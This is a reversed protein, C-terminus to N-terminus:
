PHYANTTNHSVGQQQCTSAWLALTFQSGRDSTIIATKWYRDIWDSILAEVCADTDM